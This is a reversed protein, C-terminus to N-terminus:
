DIPKSNIEWCEYFFNIGDRGSKMKARTIKRSASIWNPDAMEFNKRDQSGPHYEIENAAYTVWMNRATKSAYFLIRGVDGLTGDPRFADPQSAILEDMHHAVLLASANNIQRNYHPQGHRIQDCDGAAVELEAVSRYGLQEVIEETRRVDALSLNKVPLNTKLGLTKTVLQVDGNDAYVEVNVRKYFADILNRNRKTDAIGLQSPLLIEGM